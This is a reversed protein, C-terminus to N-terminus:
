LYDGEDFWTSYPLEVKGGGIVRAQGTADLVVQGRADLELQQVEVILTLDNIADVIVKGETYVHPAIRVQTRTNASEFVFEMGQRTLHAVKLTMGQALGFLSGFQVALKAYDPKM